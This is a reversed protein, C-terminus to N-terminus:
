IFLSTKHAQLAPSPVRLRNWLFLIHTFTQYGRFLWGAATIQMEAYEHYCLNDYLLHVLTFHQFTISMGYFWTLNKVYVQKCDLVKFKPATKVLKRFEM